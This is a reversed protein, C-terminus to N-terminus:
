DDDEIIAMGSTDNMRIAVPNRETVSATKLQKFFEAPLGHDEGGKRVVEYYEPHPKYFLFQRKKDDPVVAQYSICRQRDGNSDIVEVPAQQYYSPYAEKEQIAELQAQNIEFIVGWVKSDPNKEEVIDAAGMNGRTVSKRTFGLRYFPLCANGKKKLKLDLNKYHPKRAKWQDLDKQNLNSGYAFYLTPKSL